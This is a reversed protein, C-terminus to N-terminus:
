VPHCVPSFQCQCGEHFQRECRTVAGYAGYSVNKWQRQSMRYYYVSAAAAAAATAVAVGQAVSM